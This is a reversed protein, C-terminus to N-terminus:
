AAKTAPVATAPKPPAAAQRAKIAEIAGAAVGQTVVDRPDRAARGLIEMSKATGIERLVAVCASRTKAGDPGKEPFSLTLVRITDDEAVPGMSILAASAPETALKLWKSVTAAAVKDRCGGMAVLLNDRKGGWLKPDNLVPALRASTRDGAWVALARAAKAGDFGRDELVISELVAAVENRRKPDARSGALADFAAERRWHDTGKLDLLAESVADFAGPKFRKLLARVAKAVHEDPSAALAEIQPLSKETLVQPLMEAAARRARVDSGNLAALVYPEAAPGARALIAVADEPADALRAAVRDLAFPDAKPEGPRAPRLACAASELPVASQANDEPTKIKLLVWENGSLAVYQTWRGFPHRGSPDTEVRVAPTEGITGYQVVVGDTGDITLLNQQDAAAKQFSQYLIVPRQQRPNKRPIVKVSLTGSTRGGWTLGDPGSESSKLDLKADAPPRFRFRGVSVEDGGAMSGAAARWTTRDPIPQFVAPDPQESPLAAFKKDLDGALREIEPWEPRASLTARSSAMEAQIPKLDGMMRERSAHEAPWRELADLRQKLRNAAAEKPDVPASPPGSNTTGSSAFNSSNFTGGRAANKEEWKKQEENAIAQRVQDKSTIAGSVLVAGVVVASVLYGVVFFLAGFGYAVLAEPLRLDFVYMLAYFALPLIAVVLVIRLPVNEPTFFKIALLAVEPVAAVGAARLYSAGPLEFRMIKSAIFVALWFLPAVVAFFTLAKTLYTAWILSKTAKLALPHLNEPLNYHEMVILAVTGALYGLLLAPTAADLGISNNARVTKARPAAYVVPVPAVFGSPVVIRPPAAITGGAYAVAPGASQELAAMASFPDDADDTRAPLPPPRMAAAQTRRPPASTAGVADRAAAPMAAAAQAVFVNGCQSCKVKKGASAPNLAYKRHCKECEVALPM